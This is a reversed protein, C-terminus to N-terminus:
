TGGSPALAGALVDLGRDLLAWPINLAPLLRVKEKATLLAAGKALCENVIEKAPRGTEVGVMLGLGCVGLVGPMEALRKRIHAAKARVEGLLAEDIRSLVHLAGTCVAPNGGFTSGHSGPGLAEATREGFLTAGLPLGGALGKATSVIDPRIGYQEYAFLTGTRGNGTQVEDLLLLLGKEEALAALARVYAPELAEVGGEGQVLELMVACCDDDLKARLDDVDGPRAHRFGAPLPAFGEHLATQGTAALTACTRGHFSNELTVIVPRAGDGWQDAAWKRAAKIMAENAEAGSNSFFVKRMGARECLAKALAAQPETCYLNSVHALTRLQASVADAWAMDALGLTNVAIGSGLDIYERGQEDWLLSGEGRAFTVPFRAYTNALYQEATQQTNMATKEQQNLLITTM